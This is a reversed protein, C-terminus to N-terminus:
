ALLQTDIMADVDIPEGTAISENACIGVLISWAGARYDAYRNLSDDAALGPVFLHDLMVLDGGGHEGEIETIEVNYPEDFQPFVRISAADAVGQGTGDNSM